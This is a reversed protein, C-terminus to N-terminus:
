QPGIRRPLIVRLAQSDTAFTEPAYGVLEGDAMVPRPTCDLIECDTSRVRMVAADSPMAGLLHARVWVLLLRLPSRPRIGIVDLQGDFPSADFVRQGGGFSCGNAVAIELWRGSRSVDGCRITAQFGRRRELREILKRLYSFRGWARKDSAAVDDAIESGIGLHAVNVFVRRGVRGIDVKRAVGNAINRCAREPELPIGLGRAFDNGTGAPLIGLDCDHEVCWTALGNVTGDGGAAIVRDGKCVRPMDAIEALSVQLGQAALRSTWFSADKGDGAAPNVVLYNMVCGSTGTCGPAGDSLISAPRAPSTWTASM